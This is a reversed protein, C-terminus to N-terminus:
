LTRGKNAFGSWQEVLLMFTFPGDYTAYTSSLILRPSNSILIVWRSGSHFSQFVGSTVVSEAALTDFALSWLHSISPITFSPNAFHILFMVFVTLLVVRLRHSLHTDAM